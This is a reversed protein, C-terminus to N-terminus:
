SIDIKFMEENNQKFFDFWAVVENQGLDQKVLSMKRYEQENLEKKIYASSNIKRCIEERDQNSLRRRKYQPMNLHIIKKEQNKKNELEQKLKLEQSSPFSYKSSLSKKVVKHEQLSRSFNSLSRKRIVAREVCSLTRQTSKKSKFFKLDKISSTKQVVTTDLLKTNTKESHIELSKITEKDHMGVENNNEASFVEGNTRNFNDIKLTQKSSSYSKTSDNHVTSVSSKRVMEISPVYRLAYRRSKCLGSDSNSNTVSESSTVEMSSVANSRRRLIRDADILKRCEQKPLKMSSKAYSYYFSYNNGIVSIPLAVMLIGFAACIAGILKGVVTTPSIDGYGVTSLTIIAWWFSRPISKFNSNVTDKEAYYALTAFVVMPIFLVLVLLMLQEMSAKLTEAFVLMSRLNRFFRLLRFIRLLRLSKLFGIGSSEMWFDFYLPLLSFIDIWTLFDKLHEIISPCCLFRLVIDFTFIVCYGKEFNNFMTKNKNFTEDTELCFTAISLLVIFIHISAIAKTLFNKQPVELFKWITNFISKLFGQHCFNGGKSSFKVKETVNKNGENIFKLNESVDRYQSYTAWCCPQMNLEDIGWFALEEEFLPGCVDNPCHLKGTRCYNLINEFCGAHRDFFFENPQMNYDSMATATEAIWFLRTDPFNQITSIYCEHRSGGVNIIVRDKNLSKNKEYEKRGDRSSM